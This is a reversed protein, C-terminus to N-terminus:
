SIYSIFIHVSHPGSLPLWSEGSLGAAKISFDLNRDSGDIEVSYTFSSAIPKLASDEISYRIIFKNKNQSTLSDMTILGLPISFTGLGGLEEDFNVIQIKSYQSPNLKLIPEWASGGPAPAFRYLWSYFEDTPNQNIFLDDLFVSTSEPLTEEPSGAGVYIKSGRAGTRGFDTSVDLSVPGGFVDLDVSSLILDINAM